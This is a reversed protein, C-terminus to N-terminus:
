DRNLIDLILCSSRHATEDRSPKRTQTATPRLTKGALESVSPPSPTSAKVRFKAQTVNRLMAVLASDRVDGILDEAKQTLKLWDHWDGIVDQMHKLREVVRRAEPENDSLEAIYRARKGIIRYQHLTKETLPVYDRGLQALKATLILPETDASIAM